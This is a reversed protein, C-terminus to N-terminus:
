RILPFGFQRRGPRGKRGKFLPEEALWGRWSGEAQEACKEWTPYSPGLRQLLAPRCVGGSLLPESAWFASKPLVERMPLTGGFWRGRGRRRAGPHPGRSGGARQPGPGPHGPAHEGPAAAGTLGDEVRVLPAIAASREPGGGVAALGHEPLRGPHEPPGKRPKGVTLCGQLGDGTPLLHGPGHGDIRLLKRPRQVDPLVKSPRIPRPPVRRAVRAGPRSAPWSRGSAARTSKPRTSRGGGPPSRGGCPVPPRRGVVPGAAGEETGPGGLGGARAARPRGARSPQQPMTRPSAFNQRVPAGRCFNVARAPATTVGDM